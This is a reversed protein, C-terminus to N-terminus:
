AKKSIVAEIAAFRTDNDWDKPVKAVVEEGGQFQYFSVSQPLIDFCHLDDDQVCFEGDIVVIEGIFTRRDVPLVQKFFIGAETIAMKLKDGEVMRSKSAYNGPVPYIKGDEDGVMNEGNFTGYVERFPADSM